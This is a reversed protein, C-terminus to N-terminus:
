EKSKYFLTCSNEKQFVREAFDKAEVPTVQNYCNVQENFMQANGLLEYYALEAALDAQAVCDSLHKSEHKNRLKQVEYDTIETHLFDHIVEDFAENALQPTTGKAFQGFFYFLGEEIDGSIYADAATFIKKKKVLEQHIRSSKGNSLVDSVFDSVFYDNTLRGGTHYVRYFLSTPVDKEVELYRPTKQVELKPIMRKIVDRRPINGFWKQVLRRTEELSVNGVVSLIANNPAYHSYFFNSVEECTAKEIHELKLGITPWGYPHGEFCLKRLHHYLDGYPQNLCRQKFEECVVNKQVDLARQSFDLETMRDAELWLAVELNNSPITIYYNTYDVCTWANNDGGALQVPEDFVPVNPTGGFMLHEFLHAFGTKERVEDKSGVDYLTNVVVMSVSRDECHVVRLGNELEFRNIKKM